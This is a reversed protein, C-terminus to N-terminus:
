EFIGQLFFEILQGSVTGDPEVDGYFSGHKGRKTMFVTEGDFGSEVFGRKELSLVSAAQAPTMGENSTYRNM